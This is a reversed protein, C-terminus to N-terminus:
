TWIIFAIFYYYYRIIGENMPHLTHPIPHLTYPTPYPTYPTPYPTYPIPHPTIATVPYRHEASQRGNKANHLHSM